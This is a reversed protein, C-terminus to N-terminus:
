SFLCVFSLSSLLYSYFCLVIFKGQSSPHFLGAQGADPRSLNTDRILGNLENLSLARFQDLTIGKDAESFRSRFTNFDM